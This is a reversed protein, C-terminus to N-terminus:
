ASNGYMPVNATFQVNLAGINVGALFSPMTQAFVWANNRRYVYGRRYPDYYTRYAPFYVYESRHHFRKGYYWADHDRYRHKRQKVFKRYERDRKEYYKRYERDRKEEYKRYAKDYKAQKHYTRDYKRHKKAYEKKHKGRHGKGRGQADAEITTGMMFALAAIGIVLKKM